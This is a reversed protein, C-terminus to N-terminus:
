SISKLSTDIVWNPTIGGFMDMEVRCTVYVMWGLVRKWAKETICVTYSSGQILKWGSIINTKSFLEQIPIRYVLSVTVSQINNEWHQYRVYIVKMCKNEFWWYRLVLLKLKQQSTDCEVIVLMFLTDISLNEKAQCHHLYAFLLTLVCEKNTYAIDSDPPLSVCLVDNISHHQRWFWWLKKAKRQM